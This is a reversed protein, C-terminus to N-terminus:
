TAGAQGDRQLAAELEGADIRFVQYSVPGRPVVMATATRRWATFSLEELLEEDTEVTYTGAPQEGDLGSLTFPRRFTIERRTTRLPM